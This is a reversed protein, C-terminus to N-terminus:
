ILRSPWWLDCPRSIKPRSPPVPHSDFAFGFVAMSINQLFQISTINICLPSWVVTLVIVAKPLTACTPGFHGHFALYPVGKIRVYNPYQVVGMYTRQILKGKILPKITSQM